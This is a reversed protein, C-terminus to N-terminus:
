SSAFCLLFPFMKPPSKKNLHFDHQYNLHPIASKRKLFIQCMRLSKSRHYSQGNKQIIGKMFAHYILAVSSVYVNKVTKYQLKEKLENAPRRKQHKSILGPIYPYDHEEQFQKYKDPLTNFKIINGENVVNEETFSILQFRFLATM